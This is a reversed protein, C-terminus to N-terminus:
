LTIYLLFQLPRIVHILYNTFNCTCYYSCIRVHSFLFPFRLLGTAFSEHLKQSKMQKGNTWPAFRFYTIWPHQSSYASSTQSAHTAEFLLRTSVPDPPLTVCPDWGMLQFLRQSSTCLINM